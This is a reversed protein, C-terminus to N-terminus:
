SVNVTAPVPRTPDGASVDLVGGDFPGLGVFEVAESDAFEELLTLPMSSVDVRPLAAEVVVFASRFGIDM